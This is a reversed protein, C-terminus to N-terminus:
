TNPIIPDNISEALSFPSNNNMENFVTSFDILHLLSSFNKPKTLGPPLVGGLLPM